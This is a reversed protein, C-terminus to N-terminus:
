KKEKIIKKIDSKTMTVKGEKEIDDKVKKDLKDDDIDIKYKRRQVIILDEGIGEFIPVLYQKAEEVTMDPVKIVIFNPPCEANGWIHSDPMVVVPYGRKYCGAKDKVSDSHITDIAKILIECM